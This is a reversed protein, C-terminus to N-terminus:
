EKEGIKQWLGLSFAINADEVPMKVKKADEQLYYDSQIM